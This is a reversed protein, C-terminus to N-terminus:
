STGALFLSKLYAEVEQVIEFTVLKLAIRCHVSVVQYWLGTGDVLAGMQWWRCGGVFLVVDTEKRIETDIQQM